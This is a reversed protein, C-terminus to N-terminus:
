IKLGCRKCRNKGRRYRRYRNSFMGWNLEHVVCETAEQIRQAVYKGLPSNKPVTITGVLTRWDFSKAAEKGVYKM